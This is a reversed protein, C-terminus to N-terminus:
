LIVFKGNKEQWIDQVPVAPVPISIRQEQRQEGGVERDIIEFNVEVKM